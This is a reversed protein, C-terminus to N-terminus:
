SGGERRRRAAGLDVIEARALRRAELERALQAVTSWERAATAGELARALALEVPDGITQRSPPEDPATEPSRPVSMEASDSSAANEEISHLTKLNRRRLAHPNSDRGTCKAISQRDVDPLAEDLPALVGLELEAVMRAARRYNMLQASTTHGTRDMVWTESRGAAFSLTVFTARLDHARIQQRVESDEFLEARTVGAKRLDARFIEALRDENLLLGDANVFVREDAIAEDTADGHSLARWAVLARVVGPDLAWPRRDDTKNEDLRVVGRVLDFHRWRFALAESPGRTGERALFGWLVRRHIPIEACAMLKADEDPYLFSRARPKGLKPLWGRPVPSAAIHRAPYVALALTRRVVQAIHRRTGTALEDPVNAMVEEADDLTIEDLRKDGLFADVYKRLLEEDRESDKSPVHDRHRAHLRGSTWEAAFERFTPVSSARIDETGGACLADVAALVADWPRGPRARAAMELLKPTHEAHGARRLRVALQAMATCRERAEMRTTCTALVYARRVKGEIRVIAEFGSKLPRLEGTAERPM